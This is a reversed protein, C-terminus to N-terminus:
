AFNALGSPSSISNSARGTPFPSTELSTQHLPQLSLYQKIINIYQLTSSKCNGKPENELIQSTLYIYIVVAIIHSYYRHIM